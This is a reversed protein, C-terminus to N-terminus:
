ADEFSLLVFPPEFNGTYNMHRTKWVLMRFSISNQHLIIKNQTLKHVCPAKSNAHTRWPRSKRPCCQQYPCCNKKNPNKQPSKKRTRCRQYTVSRALSLCFNLTYMLKNAHQMHTLHQHPTHAHTRAYTCIICVCVCVCVCVCWIACVHMYIHMYTWKCAYLWVYMSASISYESRAPLNESEGTWVSDFVWAGQLMSCASLAGARTRSLSTRVSPVLLTHSLYHYVFLVFNEKEIERERERERKYVCVCVCVGSVRIDESKAHGILTVHDSGWLSNKLIQKVLM